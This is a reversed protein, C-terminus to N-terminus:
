PKEKGALAARCVAAWESITVADRAGVALAAKLREVEAEAAVMRSRIEMVTAANDILGGGLTLTKAATNAIDAQHESALNCQHAWADRQETLGRLAEELAEVRAQAELCQASIAGVEQVLRAVEAQARQSIDVQAALRHRLAEGRELRIEEDLDATATKVTASAAHEWVAEQAKLRAIEAELVSVAETIADECRNSWWEASKMNSQSLIQDARARPTM